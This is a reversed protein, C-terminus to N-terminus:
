LFKGFSPFFLFVINIFSLLFFFIVLCVWFMHLLWLGTLFGAVFVCGWWFRCGSKNARPGTHCFSQQAVRHATFPKGHVGHKRRASCMPLLDHLAPCSCALRALLLTTLPASPRPFCRDQSCQQERQVLLGASSANLFIKYKDKQFKKNLYTMIPFVHDNLQAPSTWLFEDCGHNPVVFFGNWIVGVRPVGPGSRELNHVNHKKASPKERNIGLILVVTRCFDQTEKHFQSVRGWGPAGQPSRLAPLELGRWKHEGFLSDSIFGLVM